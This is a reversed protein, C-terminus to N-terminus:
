ESCSQLSLFVYSHMALINVEFGLYLSFLHIHPQM